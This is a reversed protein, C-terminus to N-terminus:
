TGEVIQLLRLLAEAQFEGNIRICRGNRLVLEISSHRELKVDPTPTVRVPLFQAPSAASRATHNRLQQGWWALTGKELAHAAAYKGISLGSERWRRVEEVWEARPRPARKLKGNSLTTQMGGVNRGSACDPL